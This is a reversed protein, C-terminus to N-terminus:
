TFEKKVDITVPTIGLQRARALSMEIEAQGQGVDVNIATLQRAHYKLEALKVCLTSDLGGSYALAIHKGQAVDVSVIKHLALDLASSHGNSATVTQITHTASNTAM